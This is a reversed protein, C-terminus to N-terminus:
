YKARVSNLGLVYKLSVRAVGLLIFVVHCVVGKWALNVLVHWEGHESGSELGDM